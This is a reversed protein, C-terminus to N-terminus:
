QDDLRKYGWADLIKQTTDLHWLGALLAAELVDYQMVNTDTYVEEDLHAVVKDLQETTEEFTQFRAEKGERDFGRKNDKGIRSFVYPVDQYDTGPVSADNFMTADVRSAFKGLDGRDMLESDVSGGSPTSRPERDSTSRPEQETTSRPERDTTTPVDHDSGTTSDSSEEDEWGADTTGIVEEDDGAVGMGSELDLGSDDSETDPEEDSESDTPM